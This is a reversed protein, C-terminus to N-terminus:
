FAIRMSFIDCRSQLRYSTAASCINNRGDPWALIYDGPKLAFGAAPSPPWDWTTILGQNASSAAIPIGYTKWYTQGFQNVRQGYIDSALLCDNLTTTNRCDSWIVVAGGSGDSFLGPGVQNGASSLLIPTTWTPRGNSDIRQLVINKDEITRTVQWALYAGGSGDLIAKPNENVGEVPSVLIGEQSWLHRGNGDIRSARLQVKPTNSAIGHGTVFTAGGDGDAIVTSPFGYGIETM